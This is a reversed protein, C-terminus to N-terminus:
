PGGSVKAGHLDWTKAQGQQTVELYHGIGGEAQWKVLIISRHIAMYM